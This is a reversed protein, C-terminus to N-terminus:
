YPLRRDRLTAEIKTAVVDALPATGGLTKSLVGAFSPGLQAMIKSIALNKIEEAEEATLKGDASAAKAKDVVTRQVESVVNYVVDALATTANYLTDNEIKARLYKRLELLALSLLGALAAGALAMLEPLLSALLEKM